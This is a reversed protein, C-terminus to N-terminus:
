PGSSGPRSVPFRTAKLTGPPLDAGPGPRPLRPVEYAPVPVRALARRSVLLVRAAVVLVLVVRVVAGSILRRAAQRVGPFPRPYGGYKWVARLTYADLAMAGHPGVAELHRKHAGVLRCAEPPHTM